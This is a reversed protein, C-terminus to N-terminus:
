RKGRDLRDLGNLYLYNQSSKYLIISFDQAIYPLSISSESEIARLFETNIKSPYGPFTSDM